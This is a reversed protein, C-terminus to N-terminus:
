GFPVNLIYIKNVWCSANHTMPIVSFQMRNWNQLELFNLTVAEYNKNGPENQSLTTTGRLIKDIPWINSIIFYKDSEFSWWSIKYQITPDCPPQQHTHKGLKYWFTAFSIKLHFSIDIFSAFMLLLLSIQTALFNDKVYIIILIIRM